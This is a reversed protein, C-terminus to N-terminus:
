PGYPCPPRLPIASRWAVGSGHVDARIRHLHGLVLFV